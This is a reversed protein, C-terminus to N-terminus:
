NEYNGMGIIDEVNCKLKKAIKNATTWNRVGFERWYYIMQKSVGLMDKLDTTPIAYDRQFQKLKSIYITCRRGRLTYILVHIQNELIKYSLQKVIVSECAM